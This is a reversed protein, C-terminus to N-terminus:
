EFFTSVPASFGPLVPSELTQNERIERISGTTRIHVVRSEPYVQWVETVGAALYQQVKREADEAAESRSIVEVALNPVFPILNDDISVGSVRDNTVFAVDPQRATDVSLTFMSEGFVRGHGADPDWNNLLRHVNGKVYEHRYGAGPVAILEGGSLEYHAGEPPDSLTLLDSARLATTTGM